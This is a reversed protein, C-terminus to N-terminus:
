RETSACPFVVSQSITERCQGLDHEVCPLITCARLLNYPWLQADKRSSTMYSIMLSKIEGHEAHMRLSTALQLLVYARRTFIRRSSKPYLPGWRARVTRTQRQEIESLREEGSWPQSVKGSYSLAKLPAQAGTAPSVSGSNQPQILGSRRRSGEGPLKEMPACATRRCTLVSM